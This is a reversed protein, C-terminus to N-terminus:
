LGENRKEQCCLPSEVGRHVQLWGHGEQYQKAYDAISVVSAIREESGWDSWVVGRVPLVLLGFERPPSFAELVGRSFNMAEILRYAEEM